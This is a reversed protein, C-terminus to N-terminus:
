RHKSRRGGDGSIQRKHTGNAAARRALPRPQQRTLMRCLDSVGPKILVRSFAVEGFNEMDRTLIQTGRPFGFTRFERAPRELFAQDLGDEHNAAHYHSNGDLGLGIGVKDGADNEFKRGRHLM